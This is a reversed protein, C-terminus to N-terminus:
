REAAAFGLGRGLGDLADAPLIVLCPGECTLRVPGTAENSTGVRGAPDLVLGDLPWRLGSSTLRAQGLPWLSVRTGVTLDLELREPVLAVCDTDSLLVVPASGPAREGLHSLAALAHDIRGGLFGVAVIVPAQARALAKAFDTSDQETVPMLVSAFATRTEASISDMDGVVAEPM